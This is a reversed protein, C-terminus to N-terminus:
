SFTDFSIYNERSDQRKPSIRRGSQHPSRSDSCNSLFSKALGPPYPPANRRRWRLPGAFPRPLQPGFNWQLIPPGNGPLPRFPDAPPHRAAASDPKQFHRHQRLWRMHRASVGLIESAQVWTLQEAIAKTIVERRTMARAERWVQREIDHM